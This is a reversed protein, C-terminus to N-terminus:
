RIKSKKINIIRIKIMIKIRKKIIKIRAKKNNKNNKNMMKKINRMNLM